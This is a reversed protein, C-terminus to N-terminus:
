GHALLEQRRLTRIWWVWLFLILGGIILLAISVSSVAAACDPTFVTTMVDNPASM